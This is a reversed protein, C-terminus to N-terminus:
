LFVSRWRGVGSVTEVVRFFDVSNEVTTPRLRARERVRGVKTREAVARYRFRRGVLSTDYTELRRNPVISFHHESSGRVRRSTQAMSRDLTRCRYLSWARFFEWRFGWKEPAPPPRWAAAWSGRGADISESPDNENFRSHTPALRTASVLFQSRCVRSLLEDSSSQSSGCM